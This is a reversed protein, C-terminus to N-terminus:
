VFIWRCGLLVLKGAFLVAGGFDLANDIRRVRGNFDANVYRM